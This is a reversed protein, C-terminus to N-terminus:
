EHGWDLKQFILNSIISYEFKPIIWNQLFSFGILLFRKQFFTRQIIWFLGESMAEIWNEFFWYKLYYLKSALFIWDFLLKQFVHECFSGCCDKVWPRLGVKSFDCKSIICNQLLSFGILCLFIQFFVHECSSGFIM